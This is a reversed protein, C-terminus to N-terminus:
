KNWYGVLKLWRCIEKPGFCTDLLSNLKCMGSTRLLGTLSIDSEELADPGMRAECLHHSELTWVWLCQLLLISYFSLFTEERNQGARCGLWIAASETDTHIRTSGLGNAAEHMKLAGTDACAAVYAGSHKGALKDFFTHRCIDSIISALTYRLAYNILEKDGGGGRMWHGNDLAVLKQPTCLLM